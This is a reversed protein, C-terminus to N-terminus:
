DEVERVLRFGTAGYRTDLNEGRTRHAARLTWPFSFWGGPKDVGDRWASGDTAAGVYSM